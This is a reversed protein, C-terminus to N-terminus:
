NACTPVHERFGGGAAEFRLTFPQPLVDEVAGTFDLALLLSQEEPEAVELERDTLRPGTSVPESLFGLAAELV